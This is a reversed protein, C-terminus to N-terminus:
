SSCHLSETAIPSIASMGPTPEFGRKQGMEDTQQSVETCHLLPVTLHIM